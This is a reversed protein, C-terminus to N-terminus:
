PLGVHHIERQFGKFDSDTAFSFARGCGENQGAAERFLLASPEIPRIIVLRGWDAVVFGNGRALSCIPSNSAVSGSVMAVDDGIWDSRELMKYRESLVALGVDWEAMTQVLLDQARISHNPNGQLIRGVLAMM